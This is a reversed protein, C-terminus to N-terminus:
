SLKETLWLRFNIKKLVHNSV